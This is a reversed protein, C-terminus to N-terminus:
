GMSFRVRSMRRASRPKARVGENVTVEIAMRATPMPMSRAANVRTHFSEMAAVDSVPIRTDRTLDRTGAAISYLVGAGRLTDHLVLVGNRYLVTSGDKLHAKTASRIQVSDGRLDVPDIAVSRFIYICGPVALLLVLLPIALWRAHRTRPM